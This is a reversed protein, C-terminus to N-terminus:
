HLNFRVYNWDPGVPVLLDTTRPDQYKSDLSSGTKDPVRLHVFVRYTGPVAGRLEPQGNVYLQFSGDPNVQGMAVPGRGRDPEFYIMGSFPQDAFTVRGSVEALEFHDSGLALAWGVLLPAPVLVFARACCNRMTHIHVSM